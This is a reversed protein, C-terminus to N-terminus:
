CSPSRTRGASSHTNGAMYSSKSYLTRMGHANAPCHALAPPTPTCLRHTARHKVRHSVVKTNTLSLGCLSFVFVCWLVRLVPSVQLWPARLGQRLGRGRSRVRDSLILPCVVRGRSSSDTVRAACLLLLSVFEFTDRVPINSRHSLSPTNTKIKNRFSCGTLSRTRLWDSPEFTPPPSALRRSGRITLLSVSSRCWSCQPSSLDDSCRPPSQM